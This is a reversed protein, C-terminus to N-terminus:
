CEYINSFSKPQTSLTPLITILLEYISSLKRSHFTYYLYQLIYCCNRCIYNSTEQSISAMTRCHIAIRQEFVGARYIIIPFSYVVIQFEKQYCFSVCKPDSIIQYTVNQILSHLIIFM